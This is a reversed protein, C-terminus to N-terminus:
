SKTKQNSENTTSRSNLHHIQEITGVFRNGSSQSSRGFGSGFFRSGTTKDDVAFGPHKAQAAPDLQHTEAIPDLDEVLYNIVVDEGTTEKTIDHSTVSTEGSELVCDPACIPSAAVIPNTQDLIGHMGDTMDSPSVELSYTPSKQLLLIRFGDLDFNTNFIKNIETLQSEDELITRQLTALAHTAIRADECNDDLMDLLKRNDTAAEQLEERYKRHTKRLTHVILNTLKLRPTVVSPNINTGVAGGIEATMPKPTETLIGTDLSSKTLRGESLIDSSAIVSNAVEIPVAAFFKGDPGLIYPAPPIM